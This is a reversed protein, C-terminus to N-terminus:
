VLPLTTRWPSVPQVVLTGAVPVQVERLEVQLSAVRATVALAVRRESPVYLAFQQLSATFIQADGDLLPMLLSQPSGDGVLVSFFTAGDEIYPPSLLVGGPTVSPGFFTAAGEVFPAFLSDGSAEVTIQSAYFAGDNTLLPPALAISSAAAAAYFAEAGALLGPALTVAGPAAVPAYLAEAGVLLAPMLTVTGPAAAPAYFTEGSALSVPMLTVTGPTAVPAYFGHSNTTVPVALAVEGPTTTPAHFTQSNALLSPALASSPVAAPAHFTQSNTLLSPTLATADAAATPAYFSQTNAVLGPTLTVAGPTVTPAYFAGTNTVLSATAAYSATATPVYFAQANTALGPTLTVAGPAATPAYFAPSNTALGPTLTQTAATTDLEVVIAGFATGSTGGWTVTSGTFGSNISVVEIGTTPSAYGTADTLETWTSPQTMAAPSAGNAVFGVLANGTLAASGLSVTPTAAAAGNDQKGSKLVAAAGVRTMSAATVVSVIAGTAADGTCDYTVTQAVASTVLQNSVFLYLTDASAAKVASTIKTFTYGASSTVSSAAVTASAVVAVIILDGVAPTFSGSAYSSANSTSPTTVRHTITAM